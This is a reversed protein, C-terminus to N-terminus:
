PKGQLESPQSYNCRKARPSSTTAATGSPLFPRAAWLGPLHGRGPAPDASRCSLRLPGNPPIRLASTHHTLGVWQSQGFGAPCCGGCAPREKSSSVANEQRRPRPSVGAQPTPHMGVCRRSGLLPLHAPRWTHVLTRCRLPPAGGTCVRCGTHPWPAHASHPPLLGM